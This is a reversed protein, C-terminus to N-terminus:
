DRVVVRWHGAPTSEIEVGCGLEPLEFELAEGVLQEYITRVVGKHSVVLARRGRQQAIMRALGVRVRACFDARCEGEPFDFDARREQWEAYLASDRASIEGATLGEWRGFDIERFDPELRIPSGPAVISAFKWARQLTSAVVFDFSRDALRQRAARAQQHGEESLWVNRAGFFRVSSEGTTEGHRLLVLHQLQSM